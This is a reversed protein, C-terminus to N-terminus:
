NLILSTYFIFNKISFGIPNSILYRGVSWCCHPLGLLLIITNYNRQNKIVPFLKNLTKIKKVKEELQISEKKFIKIILSFLLCSSTLWIFIWRGYDHAIIFLPTFPILQILILLKKLNFFPDQKMGCYLRIAFFMTIAWMLPHWFIILNFKGLSSISLQFTTNLSEGIWAIAGDPYVSDLLGTSPMVDKFEKWSNHIAIASNKNGKFIICIIFTILFFSTLLSKLNNILFKRIYFFILLFLSPLAWIGYGEHSLLAIISFFNILLISLSTSIKKLYLKKLTLLCVGYLLVLFVDKRVLYDESIPGLLILSSLLFTKDFTRWSFIRVLIFLFLISSVSILWTLFIPNIDFNSSLYFIVQGPLGRRIFGGSYSILWEGVTWSNDYFRNKYLNLPIGLIILSILFGEITIKFNSVKHLAFQKRLRKMNSQYTNIIPM